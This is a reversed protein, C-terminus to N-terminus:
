WRVTWQDGLLGSQHLFFQGGSEAWVESLLGHQSLHADEHTHACYSAVDSM